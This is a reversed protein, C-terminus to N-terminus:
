VSIPNDAYTKMLIYNPAVSASDKIVTQGFVAAVGLGNIFWSGDPFKYDQGNTIPVPKMGWGRVAIEAGFGIASAVNRQTILAGATHAAATTGNAGRGATTVFQFTSGTGSGATIATYTMEENDIKITGTDSFFDGLDKYTTSVDFDINGTAACTTYVRAEPRLPSGQINNASKKAKHVYIIVGNYM